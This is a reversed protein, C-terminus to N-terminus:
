KQAKRKGLVAEAVRRRGAAQSGTVHSTHRTVDFKRPFFSTEQLGVLFGRLMRQIHTACVRAVEKMEMGAKAGFKNELFTQWPVDEIVLFKTSISASSNGDEIEEHEGQALLMKRELEM